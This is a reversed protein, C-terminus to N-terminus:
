ILNYYYSNFQKEEYKIEIKKFKILYDELEYTSNYNNFVLNKLQIYISNPFKNLMYALISVENKLNISRYFIVVKNEIDKIEQSSVKDIIESYIFDLTEEQFLGVVYNYNTDLYFCQIINYKSIEFCTLTFSSLVQFKENEPSFAVKTYSNEQRIDVSNFKFKQLSLYFNYEDKQGIFCFMYTKNENKLDIISYFKSAWISYGFLPQQHIGYIQNNYIDFIDIAM